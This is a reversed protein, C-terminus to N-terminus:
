ENTEDTDVEDEFLDLKMVEILPMLSYGDTVGFITPDIDEQQVNVYEEVEESSTYDGYIVMKIILGSFMYSEMASSQLFDTPDNYNLKKFLAKAKELYPKEILNIKPSHYFAAIPTTDNLVIFEQCDYGLLKESKGSAKVSFSMKQPNAKYKKLQEEAAEREEDSYGVLSHEESEKIMQQMATQFEEATGEWFIRHRHNEYIIHDTEWNVSLSNNPNTEKYFPGKSYVKELIVVEDMQSNRELYLDAKVALVVTLFIFILYKFNKM